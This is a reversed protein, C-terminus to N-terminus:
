VIELTRTVFPQIARLNLMAGHGPANPLELCGNRIPLGEAASCAPMGHDVTGGCEGYPAYLGIVSAIHAFGYSGIGTYGTGFVAAPIGATRAIAARGLIESFPGQGNPHLNIEHAARKACVQYLAHDGRSPADLMIRPTTFENCLEAYEDLTGDLPDEITTLGAAAFEKVADRAATLTKYGGNADAQLYGAPMVRRVSRILEVDGALDGFIKVKLAQFGQDLFRRATEAADAPCKPFLCPMMPIHTRRAGGLLAHLPLEHAKAVLDYLAMSLMERVITCHFRQHEGAEVIDRTEGLLADLRRADLGLLKKAFSDLAAPPLTLCEGIGENEDAFVRAIMFPYTTPAGFSFRLDVPMEGIHFIIKTIKLPRMLGNGTETQM